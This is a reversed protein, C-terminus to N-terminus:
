FNYASETSGLYKGVNALRRDIEAMRQEHRSDYDATREWREESERQHEKLIVATRILEEKFKEWDSQPIELTIMKEM